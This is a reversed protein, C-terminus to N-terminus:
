LSVMENGNKRRLLLTIEDSQISGTAWLFFGYCAAGGLVLLVFPLSSFFLLFLAMAASSLLIGGIGESSPVFRLFRVSLWAGLLAVLIETGLSTVAAGVYSYRPILLLNVAVNGIAICVLGLLLKRQLNGAILVANFYNGFFIATLSFILIRLPLASDVFAPGGILAVLHDALFFGGVALPLAFVLFVKFTKRATLLFKERDGFVHRSFVPLMLGAIMAPFFTLNEIIKYAANYIGVDESPRFFSLLITDAKFYTFTVIVIAGVPWSESLFRKWFRIDFSLRFIIYQRSLWWSVAANFIMYLLLAMVLASLGWNFHVTLIIIALQLCKGILEVTAVKYMVLHKQFVGNLMGSFSSFVFAAASIVIGLKLESSYPLLFAVAPSLLFISLSSVIRLAAVNGLIEQESAGERSIERAVLSSIGLDALSSFLAFFALATAYDGFGDAGLYRTVFGISVLALVTSGIKAVSNFVVNVAIRRALAM